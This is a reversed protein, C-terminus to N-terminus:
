QQVEIVITILPSASSLLNEAFPPQIGAFAARASWRM